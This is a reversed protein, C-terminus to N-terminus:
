RRASSRSAWTCPTSRSRRTPKARRAAPQARPWSGTAGRGSPWRRCRRSARAARFPPLDVDHGAIREYFERINTNTKLDGSFPSGLTVVARMKDPALVGTRARVHRGPEVRGGAGAGVPLRTSGRCSCTSRTRRPARQQARAAVSARAVRRAGARPAAGDDHPRDFPLGPDGAGAVRGRSRAPRAAWARCYGRCM